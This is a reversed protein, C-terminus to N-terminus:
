KYVPLGGVLRALVKIREDIEIIGLEVDSMLFTLHQSEIDEEIEEVAGLQIAVLSRIDM